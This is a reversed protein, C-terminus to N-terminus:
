WVCVAYFEYLSNHVLSVHQTQQTQKIKKYKIIKGSGKLSVENASGTDWNLLRFLLLQYNMNYSWFYFLVAFIHAFKMNYM